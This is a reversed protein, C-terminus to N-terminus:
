EPDLADIAAQMQKLKGEAERLREAPVYDAAAPAPLKALDTAIDRAVSAMTRHQHQDRAYVSEVDGRANRGDAEAAAAWHEAHRGAIAMAETLVAARVFAGHEGRLCAERAEVAASVFAALEPFREGSMSRGEFPTHNVTIGGVILRGDRAEAFPKKPDDSM